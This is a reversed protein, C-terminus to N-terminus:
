EDAVLRARFDDVAREAATSAAPVWDATAGAPNTIEIGIADHDVRAVTTATNADTRVVFSMRHEKTLARLQTAEVWHRLVTLRVSERHSIDCDNPRHNRAV